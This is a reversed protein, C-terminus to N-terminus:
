IPTIYPIISFFISVVVSYYPIGVHIAEGDLTQTDNQGLGGSGMM